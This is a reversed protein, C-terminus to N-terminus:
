RGCSKGSERPCLVRGPPPSCTPCREAVYERTFTIIVTISSKERQRPLACRWIQRVESLVFANWSNKNGSYSCIWCIWHNIVYIIEFNICLIFYQAQTKYANEHMCRINKNKQLPLNRAARSCSRNLTFSM